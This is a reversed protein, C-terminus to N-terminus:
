PTLSETPAQTTRPLRDVLEDLRSAWFAIRDANGDRRWHVLQQHAHTVDERLNCLARVPDDAM